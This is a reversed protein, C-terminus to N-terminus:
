DGEGSAKPKEPGPGQFDNAEWEIFARIFDDELPTKRVNEVRPNPPTLFVGNESSDGSTSVAKSNKEHPSNEPPKEWPTSFFERGPRGGKSSGHKGGQKEGILGRKKLSNICRYFTASTVGLQEMIAGAPMPGEGELLDLIRNEQRERQYTRASGESQWTLAEIDLSLTEDDIAAMRSSIELRASTGEIEWAEGEDDGSRHLILAADVAGLIASSGRISDGGSGGSKRSHHVALVSCGTARVLDRLGYMLVAMDEASNEKAGPPSWRVLPDIILLKLGLEEVYAPLSLKTAENWRAENDFYLFGGSPHGDMAALRSRILALPDELQIVAAPAQRCPRGLFDSGSSVALALNLALLSKGAKPRGAILCLGGEPILDPVLWPIETPGQIFDEYPVFPCLSKEPEILDGM